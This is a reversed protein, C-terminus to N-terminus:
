HTLRHVVGSFEAVQFPKALFANPNEPGEGCVETGVTGSVLFIRQEPRVKRIAVMLEVGNM